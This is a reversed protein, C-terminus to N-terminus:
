FNAKLIEIAKTFIHQARLPKILYSKVGMQIAKIMTERQNVSSLVIIPYSIEKAQLAELVEFGDVNPMNLDLFALDYETSDVSKLFEDGDSFADVASATQRFTSKILEQIVYDDDIVAIRLNKITDKFIENSIKREEADFKLALHGDDEEQNEAALIKEGIFDAQKGDYQNDKDPMHILDVIADQLNSVVKIRSYDSHGNVYKRVFDDKTLVRISDHKKKSAWLVVSFLKQLNPADELVLKTDSLMIIIKPLQIKYLDILESLKFRLLDLKDKNLGQAIEVFIINENVHVELIGPSEDISIPVGLLASLTTFLADIKVPKNFVKKVNYPVMELLQKQELKHALVVVPTNVTNVDAKKQKLLEMFAKIDEQYDLIMLDPALNRMKAPCDNISHAVTVDVGIEEMKASLYERFQQSDILILVQRMKSGARNYFLSPDIALANLLTMILIM